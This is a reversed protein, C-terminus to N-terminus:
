LYIIWVFSLIWALITIQLFLDKCIIETPSDSNKEVHSVQLYRMIGMVVFLSSLYLYESDLNNVVEISTTYIIYAVIVVAAMINMASDIFELNYGEVSKRMKNGTDNYILIDDRRKALAIFLALLFTMIVIWSSLEINTVISGIFLRLVFGISIIIVDLIAVHKLAFSYAINLIFYTGLIVVASLSISAMLATGSFFLIYMLIFAHTTTVKGAALPRFKKKTHQLDSEIDQHDNIIYIGSAFLSFAFFAIIANLLLDGGTIEGAFFLPLFIFLNKVYQHPRMLFIINKM